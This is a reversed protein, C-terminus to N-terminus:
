ALYELLLKGQEGGADNGLTNTNAKASKDAAHCPLPRSLTCPVFLARGREMLQHEQPLQQAQQPLFVVNLSHGELIRREGLHFPGEQQRQPVLNEQMRFCKLHHMRRGKHERWAKPFVQDHTQEPYGVWSKVNTGIDVLGNCKSLDHISSRVWDVVRLM